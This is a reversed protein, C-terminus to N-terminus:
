AATRADLGILRVVPTGTLVLATNVRVAWYLPRVEIQAATGATATGVTAWPGSDTLQGEVAVTGTYGSSEVEAWKDVWTDCRIETGGGAGAAPVSFTREERRM